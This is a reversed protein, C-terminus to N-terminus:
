FAWFCLLYFVFFKVFDFCFNVPPCILYTYILYGHFFYKKKSCAAKSVVKNDQPSVIVDITPSRWNFTNQKFLEFLSIRVNRDLIKTFTQWTRLPEVLQDVTNAMPCPLIMRFTSPGTASSVEPKIRYFLLSCEDIQRSGPTSMGITANGRKRVLTLIQESQKPALQNMM